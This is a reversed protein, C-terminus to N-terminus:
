LKEIIEELEKAQRDEESKKSEIIPTVVKRMLADKVDLLDTEKKRLYLSQVRINM